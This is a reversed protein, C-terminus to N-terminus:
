KKQSAYSGSSELWNFALSEILLSLGILVFSDYKVGIMHHHDRLKERAQARNGRKVM